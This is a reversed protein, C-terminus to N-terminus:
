NLVGRIIDNNDIIIFDNEINNNENDKNEINNNEINNNENDNKINNNDNKINDNENSNDDIEVDFDVLYQLQTSQNDNIPVVDEFKNEIYVEMNSPMNAIIYCKAQEIAEKDEREFRVSELEIKEGSKLLKMNVEDMENRDNQRMELLKDLPTTKEKFQTLDFLCPEEHAEKYDTMNFQRQTCFYNSNYDAIQRTNGYSVVSVSHPLPGDEHDVKIIEKGFNVEPLRMSSYNTTVNGRRFFDKDIDPAKQFPKQLGENYKQKLKDYDLIVSEQSKKFDSQDMMDGYGKQDSCMGFGKQADFLKDEEHKLNKEFENNFKTQWKQVDNYIDPFPPVETEQDKFYKQFENEANQYSEETLNKNHIMQDKIFTYAQQVVNMDDSNGGKDPHCLLAMGMYAKKVDKINLAKNKIDLGLLEYPNILSKPGKCKEDNKNTNEIEILEENSLHNDNMDSNQLDQPLDNQSQSNTLRFPNIIYKSKSAFHSM